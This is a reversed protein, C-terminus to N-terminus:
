LNGAVIGALVVIDETCFIGTSSHDFFVNAEAGFEEDARWLSILLPVGEFVTIIISADAGAHETKKGPLRELASFIGQPNSGYKRIIPDVSRNRFASYYGEIGSLERFPLWEGTVRPLGKIKSVLYHLILISLFDKAAANCSLSLIRRAVPDVSYEDALVKLTLDKESPNLRILEKWSNNLAVEYGM